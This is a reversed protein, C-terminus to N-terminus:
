FNCATVPAIAVRAPVIAVITMGRVLLVSLVM